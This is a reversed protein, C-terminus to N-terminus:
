RKQLGSPNQKNHMSTWRWLLSLVQFQNAPYPALCSNLSNKNSWPATLIDHCVKQVGQVHLTDLDITFHMCNRSIKYMYLSVYFLATKDNRIRKGLQRIHHYPMWQRTFCPQTFSVYHDHCMVWSSLWFCGATKNPDDYSDKKPQLCAIDVGALVLLLTHWESPEHKIATTIWGVMQQRVKPSIPPLQM